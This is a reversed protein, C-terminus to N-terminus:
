VYMGQKASLLLLFTFFLIYFESPCTSIDETALLCGSLLFPDFLRCREKENATPEGASFLSQPFCFFEYKSAITVFLSSSLPLHRGAKQHVHYYTFQLAYLFWFYYVSPSFTSQVSKFPSFPKKFRYKFYCSIPILYILRFSFFFLALLIGVAFFVSFAFCIVLFSSKREVAYSIHVTSCPKFAKKVCSWHM